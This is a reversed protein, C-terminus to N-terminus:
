LPAQVLVALVVQLHLNPQKDLLLHEVGAVGAMLPHEVMTEKLPLFLHHIEQVQQLEGLDVLVEVLVEMAVTQILILLHETVAVLLLLLALFQTLAALEKRGM